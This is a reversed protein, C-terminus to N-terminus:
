ALLKYYFVSPGIAGGASIAYRPIEGARVWGLSAYLVESPDGKRTDLVLTSRNARRAEAEIALMLRRAIGRRRMDTRVMVKMVEARHVGNPKQCLDLQAAGAVDGDCTAVLLVRTGGAVAEIVGQWYQAAEAKELPPLFGISAGDDVVDKLLAILAPLNAGADGATWCAISITPMM